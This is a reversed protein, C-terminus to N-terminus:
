DLTVETNQFFFVNETIIIFVSQRKVHTPNLTNRTNLIFFMFDVSFHLICDPTRPLTFGYCFLVAM